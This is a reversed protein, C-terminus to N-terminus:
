RGPNPFYVPLSFDHTLIKISVQGESDTKEGEFGDRGTKQQFSKKDSNYPIRKPYESIRSIPKVEHKQYEAAIIKNQVEFPPYNVEGNPDGKVFNASGKSM